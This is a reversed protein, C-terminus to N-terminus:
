VNNGSRGITRDCKFLSNHTSILKCHDVFKHQSLTSKMRNCLSCCPVVNDITYKKKSDIRDIGNYQNTPCKRITRLSYQGCYHCPKKIITLMQERSLNGGIEKQRSSLSNLISRIIFKDVSFKDQAKTTSCNHSHLYKGHYHRDCHVCKWKFYKRNDLYYIELIKLNNKVDGVELACRCKDLKTYLKKKNIIKKKGCLCKVEVKNKSVVQTVTYCGYVRGVM